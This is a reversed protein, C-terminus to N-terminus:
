APPLRCGVALSKDDDTRRNVAESNLYAVLEGRFADFESDRTRVTQILPGFFPEFASKSSQQLALNQLGDSFAVVDAVEDFRRLEIREPAADDTVFFTQNAYEGGEPWVAIEFPEGPGRRLVIGGDGIQACITQRESAVVLLATAAFERIESGTERAMLRLRERVGLFWSRVMEDSLADLDSSERVAAAVQELLDDCVTQAGRESFAASGAGDSVVTVFVEGGDASAFVACACRDQCPTQTELHSTGTAFGDVYRWTVGADFDV